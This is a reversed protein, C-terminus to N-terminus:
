NNNNRYDNNYFSNNNNRYSEQQIDNPYTNVYSNNNIDFKPDSFNRNLKQSNMLDQNQMKRLAYYNRDNTMTNLNSNNNSYNNMGPNQYIISNNGSGFNTSYSSMLNLNQEKGKSNPTYLNRNNYDPCNLNNLNSPINRSSSKSFSQNQINNNCVCHCCCKMQCIINNPFHCQCQCNSEEQKSFGKDM